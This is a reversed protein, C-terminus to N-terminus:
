LMPTPCFGHLTIYIAQQAPFEGPLAASATRFHALQSPPLHPAARSIVVRQPFALPILCIGLLPLLYVAGRFLYAKIWRNAQEKVWSSGKLWFRPLMDLDYWFYRYRDSSSM